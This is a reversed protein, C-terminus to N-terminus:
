PIEGGAKTLMATLTQQDIGDSLFRIHGDCFVVTAGGPHPSGIENDFGLSGNLPNKEHQAFPNHGSAWEMTTIRRFLAEAVAATRACGDTIQQLMVPKNYLLVGLSQENLTQTANEPDEADRGVGELGYIGGYDSFAQGRWLGSTSLRLESPTSACLFVPLVKAGLERNPPDYSPIDLRFENWLAAQEILPLLQVNWSILRQRVFPQDPRPPSYGICGIPFTQQQQEFLLLGIGIQKLNNQCQTRRASERATQVAPLLLGTLVGIIAIVVLLEVLTFGSRSWLPYKM